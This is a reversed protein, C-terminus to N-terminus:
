SKVSCTRTLTNLLKHCARDGVGHRLPLGISVLGLCDAHGTSYGVSLMYNLSKPSALKRRCVTMCPIEESTGLRLQPGQSTPLSIMTETHKSQVVKM